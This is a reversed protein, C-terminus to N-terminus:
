CINVLIRWSDLFLKKKEEPPSHSYPYNINFGCAACCTEAESTNLNLQLSSCISEISTGEWSARCLICILALQLCFSSKLWKEKSVYFYSKLFVDDETHSSHSCNWREMDETQSQAQKSSVWCAKCEWLQLPVWAQTKTNIENIMYSIFTDEAFHWLRWM